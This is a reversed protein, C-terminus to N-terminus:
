GIFSRNGSPFCHRTVVSLVAAFSLPVSLKLLSSSSIAWFCTPRFSFYPLFASLFCLLVYRSYLSSSPGKAILHLSHLFNAWLTPLLSIKGRNREWWIPCICRSGFLLWVLAEVNTFWPWSFENPLSVCTESHDSDDISLSKPIRNAIHLTSKAM